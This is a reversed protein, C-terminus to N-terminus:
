GELESSVEPISLLLEGLNEISMRQTNFSTYDELGAEKMDGEVTYKNYNLDRDDMRVRYYDGLDEAQTLEERSALTEHLKEGHRMGIIKIESDSNFITKLATALDLM